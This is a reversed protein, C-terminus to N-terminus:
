HLLEDLYYGQLKVLDICSADNTSRTSSLFKASPKSTHVYVKARFAQIICVFSTYQLSCTDHVTFHAMKNDVDMSPCPIGSSAMLKDSGAM